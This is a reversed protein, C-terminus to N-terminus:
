NVKRMVKQAKLRCYEWSRGQKSNKCDKFVLFEKTEVHLFIFSGSFHTISSGFNKGVVCYWATGYAEDVKQKASRLTILEYLDLANYALEIAHSQMDDPIDTERVEANGELM